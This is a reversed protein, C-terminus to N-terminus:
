TDPASARKSEANGLRETSCCCLTKILEATSRPTAPGSLEYPYPRSSRSAANPRSVAPAVGVLVKVGEGVSVAVDGPSVDVFVNVGLAVYVKVGNGVEVHVGVARGDCVFVGVRVDIGGVPVNVIVGAGIEVM